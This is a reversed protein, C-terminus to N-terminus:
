LAHIKKREAKKLLIYIRFDDSYALAKELSDKIQDIVCVCDLYAQNKMEMEAYKLMNQNLVIIKELGLTPASSQTKM